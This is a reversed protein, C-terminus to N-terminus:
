FLITFESRAQRRSKGAPERTVRAASKMAARPCRVTAARRANNAVSVEPLLGIGWLPATRWERGDALFDPRGDALDAGMDHVLLDTYANFVLKSAAPIAAEGTTLAPVHCVSCRAQTFLAEDRLFAAPSIVSRAARALAISAVRSWIGTDVCTEPHVAVDTRM